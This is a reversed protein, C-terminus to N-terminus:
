SGVRPMDHQEPERELQDNFERIRERYPKDALRQIRELRRRQRAEEFRREAETMTRQPGGGATAAAETAAAAAAAAQQPEPEAEKRRTRKRKKAPKKVASGKTKLKLAGPVVGYDYEDGM